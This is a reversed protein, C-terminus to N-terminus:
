WRRLSHWYPRGKWFLGVIMAVFQFQGAPTFLSAVPVLLRLLCGVILCFALAWLSGTTICFRDIRELLLVALAGIGMALAFQTFVGLPPNFLIDLLRGTVPATLSLVIFSVDLLTVVVVTALATYILSRWPLRQLSDLFKRM